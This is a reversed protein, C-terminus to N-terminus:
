ILIVPTGYPLIEPASLKARKPSRKHQFALPVIHAVTRVLGFARKLRIFRLLYEEGVTCVQAYSVDHGTFHRRHVINADMISSIAGDLPGETSACGPSPAAVETRAEM